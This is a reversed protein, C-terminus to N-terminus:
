CLFLCLMCSWGYHIMLLKSFLLCPLLTRLQHLNNYERLYSYPLDPYFNVFDISFSACALAVRAIPMARCFTSLFPIVNLHFVAPPFGPSAISLTAFPMLASMM